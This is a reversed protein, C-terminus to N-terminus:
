AANFAFVVFRHDKEAMMSKADWTMQCYYISPKTLPRYVSLIRKIKMAKKTLDSDWKMLVSHTTVLKCSKGANTFLPKMECLLDTIFPITVTRHLYQQTTAATTNARDQQRRDHFRYDPPKPGSKPLIPVRRVFAGIKKWTSEMVMAKMKSSSGSRGSPLLRGYQVELIAVMYFRYTGIDRSPLDM